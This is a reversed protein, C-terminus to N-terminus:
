HGPSLSPKNSFCNGGYVSSGISVFMEAQADGCRIPNRQKHFSILLVNKEKRDKFKVKKNIQENIWIFLV